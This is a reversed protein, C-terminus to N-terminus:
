ESFATVVEQRMAPSCRLPCWRDHGTRSVRKKRYRLKVMKRVDPAEWPDFAEAPQPRGRAQTGAVAIEEGQTPVLPTEVLVHVRPMVRGRDSHFTLQGEAISCKEVTAALLHKALDACEPEAHDLLKDPFVRTCKALVNISSDQFSVSNRKV